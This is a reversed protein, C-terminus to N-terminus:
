SRSGMELHLSSPMLRHGGKGGRNVEWESGVGVGEEEGVRMHGVYFLM